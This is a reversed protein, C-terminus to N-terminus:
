IVPDFFMRFFNKLHIEESQLSSKDFLFLYIDNIKIIKKKKSTIREVTQNISKNCFNM